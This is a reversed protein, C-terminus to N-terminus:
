RILYRILVTGSMVIGIFTAVDPTIRGVLNFHVRCNAYKAFQLLPNFQRM